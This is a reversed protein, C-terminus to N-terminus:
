PHRHPISRRVWRRSEREDHLRARTPLRRRQPEGLYHLSCPRGTLREQRRLDADLAFVASAVAFAIPLFWRTAVEYTNSTDAQLAVAGMAITLAVLMGIRGANFADTRWLADITFRRPNPALRAILALMFAGGALGFTYSEGSTNLAYVIAGGLGITLFSSAVVGARKGRSLDIAAFALAGALVLPLFPRFAPEYNSLNGADGTFIPGQAFIAQNLLLSTGFVALVPLSAKTYKLFSGTVAFLKARLANTSHKKLLLLNVIKQNM